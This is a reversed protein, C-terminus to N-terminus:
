PGVLIANSVTVVPGATFELIFRGVGTIRLDDWSGVGNKHTVDTTRGGLTGGGGSLAVSVPVGAVNNGSADRVRIEPQQSFVLGSRAVSSPQRRIEISSPTGDAPPPLVTLSRSDEDGFYGASGGYTATVLWEGDTAFTLQCSGTTTNGECGPGATAAGNPGSTAVSVTGEPTGFTSGVSFAVAVAQGVAAPETSFGTILVQTATPNVQHQATGSSPSDPGGGEYAATITWTGATNFTLNCQGQSTTAQCGAGEDTTVEVTGTPNGSAATVDFQVTVQEGRESPNPAHGIISTTTGAAQVTVDANVTVPGGAGTITATVTHTGTAGTTFTTVATGNSATALSSTGFVGAGLPSSLEVSAGAIPNNQADRATVTVTADVNADVTSPSVVVSSQTQSVSGPTIALDATIPTGQGSFTLTYDGVPGAVSLGSFTARGNSDTNRTTTGSLTAGSSIAITVPVGSTAVDNGQADVIQLVPIPALPAGSAITSPPPTQFELGTGSGAEATATFTVSGAGPASATLTNTGATSGLKWSGVAAEGSANTTPTAGTISGGGSAVAFTVTVGAVPNDNADTVRVRPDTTVNTGVLAEQNDGAIKEISAGSGARVNFSSSTAATLGTSTARLTYGSGSRDIELDAFTAVGGSANVTLTGTLVGDGPPNNAIAITVPGSFSTVPNNGADLVEVRVAPTIAAGADVASPQTLFALKAAAGPSVSFSSSTAANVGTASARLTYTGAHSVSLNSFTAVGGSTTASTTGSLTGGTGQLQLSVTRNQGTVVNGQGDILEVRVPPSIVEGATTSAPQTAFRLASPAGAAITITNSTAGTLSLEAGSFNITYEGAPGTIGLNTFTAIGSANTPAIPTGILTAGAPGSLEAEIAVGPDLVPNNSADRLQIQPQTGFPAGSQATSSPQREISLRGASGVTATAQFVVPSGELGAVAAETAQGGASTGLTRTVSAQGQDDTLTAAESVAGGGTLTWEVQVGPVGNGFADEIRVVLPNPLTTGAVASQPSGSVAEISVAPGATATAGATATVAAAGNGVPRATLSQSGATNGLTWQTAAIGNADTQVSVPTASGGGSVTFEVMQDVVPRDQADTVLARVPDPLPAGATATQGDGDQIEIASAAREDPLTIGDDGCGTLVAAVLIAAAAVRNFQRLM